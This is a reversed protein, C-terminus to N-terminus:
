QSQERGSWDLGCRRRSEEVLMRVANAERAGPSDPLVIEVQRLDIWDEEALAHLWGPGLSASAALVAASNKLFSRRQM